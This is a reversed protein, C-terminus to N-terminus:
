CVPRNQEGLARGAGSDVSAVSRRLVMDSRGLEPRLKKKKVNLDLEKPIKIRLM